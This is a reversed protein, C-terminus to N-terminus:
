IENGRVTETLWPVGTHEVVYSLIAMLIQWRPSSQMYPFVAHITYLMVHMRDLRPQEM